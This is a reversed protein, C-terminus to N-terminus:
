LTMYCLIADLQKAANGDLFTNVIHKDAPLVLSEAITYPKEPKVIQLSVLYSAKM